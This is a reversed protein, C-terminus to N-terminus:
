EGRESKSKVTHREEARKETVRDKDGDTQRDTQRDTGGGGDRRTADTDKQRAPPVQQQTYQGKDRTNSITRRLHRALSSQTQLLLSPACEIIKILLDAEM